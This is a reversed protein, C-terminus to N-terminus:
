PAAPRQPITQDVQRHENEYANTGPLTIFDKLVANQFIRATVGAGSATQADTFGRQRLLGEISASDFQNLKCGLTFVKYTRPLSM